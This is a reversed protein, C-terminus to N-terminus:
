EFTLVPAENRTQDRPLPPEDPQATAEEEQREALAANVAAEESLAAPNVPAAAGSGQLRRAEANPNIVDDADYGPDGSLLEILTPAEYPENAAIEVNETAIQQRIAPDAANANAAELLEAEGRSITTRAPQPAGAGSLAAIAEAQPDPDLPSVAGPVPTPLASPSLSGPLRLEDRAIVQFEDPKSRKGTLIDVPNGVSECGSVTLVVAGALALLRRERPM